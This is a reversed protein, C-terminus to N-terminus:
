TKTDKYLLTKQEAVLDDHCFLCIDSRRVIGLGGPDYAVEGEDPPQDRIKGQVSIRFGCKRGVVEPLRQQQM